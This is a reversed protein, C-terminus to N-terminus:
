VRRIYLPDFNIQHGRYWTSLGYRSFYHEISDQLYKGTVELFTCVEELTTYGLEFCAVLKDLSVIKEYGWRRATLELKWNWTSTLDTIDGYTTEYHGIEEALIGHKEYKSRHKDILIVNDFYVGALGKPIDTVEEIALQPYESVLSEYGM